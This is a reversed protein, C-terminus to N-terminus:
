GLQQREGRRPLWRSGALALLGIALLVEAAPEPVARLLGHDSNGVGSSISTDTARWEGTAFDAIFRLRRDVQELDDVILTALNTGTFENLSPIPNPDPSVFQADSVVAGINWATFPAAAFFDIFITGVFNGAGSGQDISFEAANSPPVPAGVSIWLL